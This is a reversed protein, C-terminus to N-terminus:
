EKGYVAESAATQADRSGVWMNVAGIGKGVVPTVPAVGTAWAMAPMMFMRYTAELANREATDSNNSNQAFYKRWNDFINFLYGFKGTAANAFDKNYKINYRLNYIIDALVGAPSTYAFGGKLVHLWREEDDMEQWRRNNLLMSRLTYTAVSATLLATYPLLVQGVVYSMGGTFGGQRFHMPAKHIARKTIEEYFGATFSMFGLVIRGEPTNSFYSRSVNRPNQITQWSFSTLMRAYKQGNSDINGRADDIDPLSGDREILYKAFSDVESKPIGMERFEGRAAEKYRPKKKPNLVANAMRLFYIQGMRIQRRRQRDTLWSLMNNKFYQEQVSTLNPNDQYTGGYRDTIMTSGMEAEIMGLAELIDAREATDVKNFTEKWMVGFVRFSDLVNGTRLGVVLPEHLSAFTSRALMVMTLTANLLNIGPGVAAWMGTQDHRKLAMLILNEVQKIDVASVGDKIMNNFSQEFAGQEPELLKTWASKAALNIIYTELAEIPNTVRVDKLVLDARGPLTRSKTASNSPPAMGADRRKGRIIKEVQNQADEAARKNIDFNEDPVFEGSEIMDEYKMVYAKTYQEVSKEREADVYAADDIRNIYNVHEDKIYGIDVGYNERADFYSGNWIERMAGAAGILSAKHKNLSDPVTETVGLLLNNLADMQSKNSKKLKYKKIIRTLVSLYKNRFQSELDDYKNGTFKGRGPDGWVANIMRTMDPSPNDKYRHEIVRLHRGIASFTAMHLNSAFQMVSVPNKPGSGKLLGLMKMTSRRLERREEKTGFVVEWMSKSPESYEEMNRFWRLPDAFDGDFPKEAPGEPQGLIESQATAQMLNSIATFIRARDQGQPYMIEFQNKGDGKEYVDSRATLVDIDQGALEAQYSVWAEFARAWMETPRTWYSKDGKAPISKAQRYYPSKYDRGKYNGSKVEEIKRELTAISKPSRARALKTELEMIKAAGFSEDFFITNVVDIFAEAVSDASYNAGQKRIEGTYGRFSQELFAPTKGLANMIFYDFAHGWEHALSRARGPIMIENSGGMYVGLMRMTKKGRFIIKLAKSPEAGKELIDTNELGIATTPLKAAYAMTQLEVYYDKLNSLVAAMDAGKGLEIGLGFKEKFIKKITKFQKLTPMNEAINPDLDNEVWVSTRLSQLKARHPDKGEVETPRVTKDAETASADIELPQSGEVPPKKTPPKPQDKFITEPDVANQKVIEPTLVGQVGEGGNWYKVEVPITKIGNALAVSVRHNGELIYPVGKHNVGVLIPSDKYIKEAGKKQLDKNLREFKEGGKNNRYLHEDNAGEIKNLLNVPLAIINNLSGTVSGSFFKAYSNGDHRAATKEAQKIKHQLWEGGPNDKRLKVAYPKKTDLAETLDAKSVAGKDDSFEPLESFFVDQKKKELGKIFSDVASLVQRPTEGAPSYKTEQGSVSTMVAERPGDYVDKGEKINKRAADRIERLKNIYNQKAIKVRKSKAGKEPIDVQPEAKANLNDLQRNMFGAQKIIDAYSESIVKDIQEQKGEKVRGEKVALYQRSFTNIAAILRKRKNLMNKPLLVDPGRGGYEEIKKNIREVTEVADVISVTNKDMEGGADIEEVAMKALKPVNQRQEYGELLEEKAYRELKAKETEGEPAVEVEDEVKEVAPKKAAPEEPKAPEEVAPEEIEPEAAPEEVAEEKAAPEEEAARETDDGVDLEEAKVPEESKVPEEVAATEEAPEPPKEVTDKVDKKPIVADKAARAGGKAIEATGKLSAGTTFGGLAGALSEKLYDEVTPDQDTGYLSGALEVPSQVAETLAEKGGAKGVRSLVTKGKSGLGTIGVREMAGSLLTSPLTRFYDSGSADERARGEAQGRDEAQGQWMSGGFLLPGIYPIAALAMEPASEVATEVGFKGVQPLNFPDAIVQEITTRGSRDVPNELQQGEFYHAGAYDKEAYERLLDSIPLTPAATLTDPADVAAAAANIAEDGKFARTLNFKAANVLDEITNATGALAAGSGQYLKRAVNRSTDMFGAALSPDAQFPGMGTEAQRFREPLVGSLDPAPAVSPQPASIGAAAYLDEDSYASLDQVSTSVPPAIGAAEYLEEDTYASLDPM